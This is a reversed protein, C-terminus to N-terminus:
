AGLHDLTWVKLVLIKPSTRLVTKKEPGYKSIHQIKKTM